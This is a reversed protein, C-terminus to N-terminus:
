DLRKAMLIDPKGPGNADPIVGVVVYGLRQYFGFPHGDQNVIRAAQGLVDPYLDVGSLSTRGSEDDTGLFVTLCGRARLQEELDHVLRRGLGRGQYRPDVVLPHLEWTIQGYAPQAGVWGLVAGDPACAARAINEPQLAEGVEELASELDPWAAPAVLRFGEVLLAAAQQVAQADEAFLDKIRIREISQM